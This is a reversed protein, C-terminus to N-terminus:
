KPRALREGLERLVTQPGKNEDGVFSDALLAGKGDLLVLAPTGLPAHAQTVPAGKLADWAVAPWAFGAQKGHGQMERESRDRSIWVVEFRKGALRRNREYFKVLDPTFQRCDSCRNTSFFLLLFEPPAKPALKVKKGTRLDVLKGDLEALVRHGPSATKSGLAARARDVLDTAHLPIPGTLEQGPYRARIWTGDFTGFDMEVNAALRVAAADTGFQLGRTLGVRAPWLDARTRLTALDFSRQAEDFAAYRQNAIALADTEDPQVRAGALDPLMVHVGSAVLAIVPYDVGPALKGSPAQGDLRVIPVEALVRCQRPWLEPRAVLQEWTLPPQPAPKAQPQAAAASAFLLSWAVLGAREFM